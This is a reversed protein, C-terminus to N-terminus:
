ETRVMIRQTNEIFRSCSVNCYTTWFTISISPIMISPHQPLHQDHNVNPSDSEINYSFFLDIIWTLSFLSFSHNVFLFWHFQPCCIVFLCKSLSLFINDNFQSIRWLKIDLSARQESCTMEPWLVHTICWCTTTCWVFGSKVFSPETSTLFRIKIFFYHSYHQLFIFQWM